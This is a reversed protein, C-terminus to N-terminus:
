QPQTSSASDAEDAAEARREAEQEALEALQQVRKDLRDISDHDYALIEAAEKNGTLQEIRWEHGKILSRLAEPSNWDQKEAQSEVKKAQDLQTHLQVRGTEVLGPTRTVPEQAARWVNFSVIAALLVLVGLAIAVKKM